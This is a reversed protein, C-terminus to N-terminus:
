NSYFVRHAIPCRQYGRYQPFHTLASEFDGRAVFLYDTLAGNLSTETPTNPPMPVCSRYVRVTTAGLSAVADFEAPLRVDTIIFDDDTTQFKEMVPRIFVLPDKARETKGFEILAERFEEKREEDFNGYKECFSAKLSDAFAVRKRPTLLCSQTIKQPKCFVEWTFPVEQNLQKCLYDKGTRRWGIVAWIKQTKQM